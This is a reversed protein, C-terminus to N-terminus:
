LMTTEKVSHWQYAWQAGFEAVNFFRAGKGV